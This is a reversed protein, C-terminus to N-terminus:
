RFSTTLRPTLHRMTPEECIDLTEIGGKEPDGGGFGLQQIGLVAQQELDGLLRDLMGSEGDGIQGPLDGAYEHTHGAAIVLAQHDAVPHDEVNLTSQARLGSQGGVPQGVHEVQIARAHREIRGTGRRQHRDM